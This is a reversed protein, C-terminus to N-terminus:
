LAAAFLLKSGHRWSAVKRIFGGWSLTKFDWALCSKVPLHMQSFVVKFNSSLLMLKCQILVIYTCDCTKKCFQSTTRITETLNAILHPRIFKLRGFYAFIFLNKHLSVSSKKKWFILWSCLHTIFFQINFVCVFTLKIQYCLLLMIHKQRNIQVCFSYLYGKSNDDM